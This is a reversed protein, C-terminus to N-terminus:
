VYIDSGIPVVQTLGLRSFTQISDLVGSVSAGLEKASAAASNFFTSMEADTAGTVIRLQTMASDVEVVANLVDRAAQRIYMFAQRLLMSQAVLAGMGKLADLFGRGAYGAEKASLATDAFDSSIQKLRSPDYSGSDKMGTLEATIDDLQGAYESTNVRPNNKRFSQIQQLLSIVPKLNNSMVVTDNKIQDGLGRASAISRDMEARFQGVDATASSGFEDLRTKLTAIQANLNQVGADGTGFKEGLRSSCKELDAIQKTYDKVAKARADYQQVFSNFEASTSEVAALEATADKGEKLKKVYEDVAKTAASYKETLQKEIGAGLSSDIKGIKSLMSSYERGLAGAKKSAVDLESKISGTQKAAAEAAEKVGKFQAAIEGDKFSLKLGDVQLSAFLSELDKKLSAMAAKSDIKKVKISKIDVKSKEVAKNISETLKGMADSSIAVENITVKNKKAAADVAAQFKDSEIQPLLTVKVGIDEAM